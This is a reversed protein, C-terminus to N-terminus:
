KVYCLCRNLYLVPTDSIYSLGKTYYDIAKDFNYLRYEWNGMRRFSSAIILRDNRAEERVEKSVDIQRMFSIQKVNAGPKRLRKSIKRTTPLPVFQSPEMVAFSTDTVKTSYDPVPITKDDKLISEVMQALENVKSTKGLFNEHLEPHEYASM